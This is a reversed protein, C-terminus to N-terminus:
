KTRIIEIRRNQARGAATRNDAIPSSPGFGVARVRHFDVGQNIIYQRVAEARMQTLQMNKSFNGMADSYARIEIEIESYEKLSKVIPDLWQFSDFTIEATNNNFMIGRVIQQKRFDPEKKPKPITDPCGDDDKYGNFTEPDNPCKDLTDPIGDKDNDYDPCGDADEFGDIDEPENPCKDLTDQIGDHDNDFDPCGDADAFGDRDEPVDPCQDLSDPIGDKDNDYDPCGDDDQLGDIDEPQNPCQDVGKCVRAYAALRGHAAVWPDCTGDKDNDPSPCGDADKFGDTDGTDRSCRGANTPNQVQTGLFGNWGISIQIGYDPIINTSYRWAHTNWNNRDEPQKSSLSFDAALNVYLGEPASIRIGPTAYLPGRRVDYGSSFLSLPWEGWVEAFLEIFESPTFELALAGVVANQKNVGSFQGGLNVHVQVPASRSMDFTFLMMPKVTVYDASYSSAANTDRDVDFYPYRPFLGKSRMGTPFTAAVYVAQYFSKDFRVPPIMFKTSVELDGLGGDRLDGFGAWDYYFPLAAAMDWWNLLGLSLYIDASMLTPPNLIFSGITTDNPRISEGPVYDASQAIGGGTGINLKLTGGTKASLTRVVGTQGDTNITAGATACLICGIGVVASFVRKTMM